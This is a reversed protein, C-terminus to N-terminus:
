CIQATKKTYISDTSSFEQQENTMSIAWAINGITVFTDTFGIETSHDHNLPQLQSILGEHHIAPIM